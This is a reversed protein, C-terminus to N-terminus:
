KAQAPQPDTKDDSDNINDVPAQILLDFEARVIQSKIYSWMWSNLPYDNSDSYCANGDIHTFRSLAAPDEFLGYIMIYKIYRAYNSSKQSHLYMRNHYRYAFIITKNFRGNGGFKARALPIYSYDRALGDVPGVRIIGDSQHLEITKPIELVSRLVDFQTTQVPCDSRDAVEMEICAKQIIQDDISHNKNVENRIWLARQNNVWHKLLRDDLNDDDYLKQARITLRLESTIEKPTM